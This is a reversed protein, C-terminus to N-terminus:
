RRTFITPKWGTTTKPDPLRNPDNTHTAEELTKGLIPAGRNRHQIKPRKRNHRKAKEAM